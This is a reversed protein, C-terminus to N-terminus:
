DISKITTVKKLRSLKDEHRSQFFEFEVYSGLFLHRANKSIIKRSGMSLCTIKRGNAILFTVIEDFVQYPQKHIIYGRYITEAM